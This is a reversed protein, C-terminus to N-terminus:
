HSIILISRLFYPILIHMLNMQSLIPILPPEQAYPLSGTVETLAYSASSTKVLPALNLREM